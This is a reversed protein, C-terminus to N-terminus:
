PAACLDNLKTVTTWNRTTVDEGLARGLAVALPSELLGQPCWLYAARRGLALAGPSWDERALPALRKDDAPRRTFAVLLRAPDTAVKRLPHAAVIAALEAAKLVTVRAPVGLDEALGREIAAAADRPAGKPASFVANGSNLLTRADTYGLGEIMERLDAMAVRKARGVNIGRILAVQRAAPM